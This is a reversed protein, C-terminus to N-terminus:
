RTLSCLEAPSIGYLDCIHDRLRQKAAEMEAYAAEEAPEADHNIEHLSPVLEGWALRHRAAAARVAAVLDQADEM